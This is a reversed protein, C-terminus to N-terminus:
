LFHSKHFQSAQQFSFYFVIQVQITGPTGDQVKIQKVAPTSVPHHSETHSNM